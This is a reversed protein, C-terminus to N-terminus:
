VLSQVVTELRYNASHQHSEFLGEKSLVIDRKQETHSSTKNFFITERESLSAERITMM